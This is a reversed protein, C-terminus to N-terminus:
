CSRAMAAPFSTGDTSTPTPIANQFAGDRYNPSAEIAAKRAGQALKGFTPHQLV